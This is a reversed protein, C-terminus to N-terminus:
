SQSYCSGKSKKRFCVFLCFSLICSTATKLVSFMLHLVTIGSVYSVLHTRCSGLNLQRLSNGLQPRPLAVSASTSLKQTSSVSTVTPFGFCSSNRSCLLLSPLVACCALGLGQLLREATSRLASRLAHVCLNGSTLLWRFPSFSTASPAQLPGPITDRGVLWVQLFVFSPLFSPFSCM